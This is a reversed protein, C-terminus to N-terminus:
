HLDDALLPGLLNSPDSVGAANEAFARYNYKTGYKLGSVKYFLDPCLRANCRLWKDSGDECREIIYGTIMSGGNRLPTEWTLQVSNKNQDQWSLNLPPSPREIPDMIKVPQSAASPKGVGAKNEAKVRFIYEKNEIVDNIIASLEDAKTVQVPSWKVSTRDRLEVIYSTIPSGGDSEPPEWSVTCGFKTVNGVIVNLPAEPVDFKNKAQVPKDTDVNPGSGVRNRACVRFLYMSDRQLGTVTYEPSDIHDTALTWTKRKVDRREVVYGIVKSGGDSEPEEWALSVEGDATDVVQLNKVPGPV